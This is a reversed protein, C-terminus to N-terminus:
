NKKDKNVYIYKYKEFFDESNKKPLSIEEIPSNAIIEEDTNKELISNIEKKIWFPEEIRQSSKEEKHWSYHPKILDVKRYQWAMFAGSLAGALHGEWSVGDYLPLVGWVMGGYFVAVIAALALSKVDRRFVGSCFIFFALGYVLGSAGIHYSFRGFFWIFIGPVFYIFLFVRWSIRRYSFFLFFGLILLPISNSLVHDFNNFLHLGEADPRADGHIFPFSLLGWLSKTHRPLIGFVSFDAGLLEEVIKIVWIASVFLIPVVASRIMKNREEKLNIM